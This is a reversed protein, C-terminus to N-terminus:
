FRLLFKMVVIRSSVFLNVVSCVVDMVVVNGIEKMRRVMVYFSIFDSDLFGEVVGIFICM